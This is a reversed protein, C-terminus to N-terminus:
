MLEEKDFRKKRIVKKVRLVAYGGFILTYMVFKDYQKYSIGLFVVSVHAYILGYIGYALRHLKKWTKAKMRKRVAKYSTVWLPLILIFCAIASLAIFHYIVNMKVSTKMIPIYKEFNFINPITHASFLTSALVSFEYRIGLLKKTYPKREDLAGAYMVVIFLSVSLIGKGLLYEITSLWNPLVLKNKFFLEYMMIFSALVYTVMHLKGGHKRIFDNATIAFVVVLLFCILFDM